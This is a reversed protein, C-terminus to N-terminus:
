MRLPKPRLQPLWLDLSSILDLRLENAITQQSRDIRLETKLDITRWQELVLSSQRALHPRGGSGSSMGFTPFYLITMTRWPSDSHFSFFRKQPQYSAFRLSLPSHCLDTFQWEKIIVEKGRVAIKGDKYGKPGQM